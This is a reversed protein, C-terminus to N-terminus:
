NGPLSQFTKRLRSALVLRIQSLPAAQQVSKLAPEVWYHEELLPWVVERALPLFDERIRPGAPSPWHHELALFFLFLRRFLLLDYTDLPLNNHHRSILGRGLRRFQHYLPVRLAVRLSEELLSIEAAIDHYQAIEYDQLVLLRTVTNAFVSKSWDMVLLFEPQRRCRRLEQLPIGSQEAIWSLSSRGLYGQMLAAGYYHPPMTIPRGRLRPPRRTGVYERLRAGLWQEYLFTREM